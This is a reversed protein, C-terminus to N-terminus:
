LWSRENGGGGRGGVQAAPHLPIHGFPKLAPRGWGAEQSHEVLLM